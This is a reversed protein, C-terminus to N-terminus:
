GGSMPPLVAVTDGDNLPTELPAYEENIAFRCIQPLTDLRSDSASLQALLTQLTANQATTLCMEDGVLDRYHGFFLVTVTM